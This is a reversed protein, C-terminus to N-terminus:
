MTTAPPSVCPAHFNILPESHAVTEISAQRYSELALPAHVDRSRAARWQQVRDYREADPAAPSRGVRICLAVAVAGGASGQMRNNPPVEGIRPGARSSPAIGRYRETRLVPIGM